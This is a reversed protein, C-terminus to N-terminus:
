NEVYPDNRVYYDATGERFTSHTRTILLCSGPGTDTGKEYYLGKCEKQTRCADLCEDETKKSIPVDHKDPINDGDVSWTGDPIKVGVRTPFHTERKLPDPRHFDVPRCEGNDTCLSERCRKMSDMPHTSPYIPPVRVNGNKTPLESAFHCAAM